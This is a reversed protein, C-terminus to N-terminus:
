NGRGLRPSTLEPTEAAKFDAALLLLVGAAGMYGLHAVLADLFARGLSQLDTPVEM